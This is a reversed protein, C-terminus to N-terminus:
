RMSAVKSQLANALRALRAYLWNFEIIYVVPVVICSILGFLTAVGVGLTGGAPNGILLYANYTAALLGVTLWLQTVTTARTAFYFALTAATMVGAVFLGVAFSTQATLVRPELARVAIMSLVGLVIVVLPAAFGMAMLYRRRPSRANLTDRAIAFAIFCIAFGLWAFTSVWAFEIGGEVPPGAILVYLRPAINYMIVTYMFAVAPLILSFARQQVMQSALLYATMGQAVVLASNLEPTAVHASGLLAAVILTLTLSLACLLAVGQQLVTAPAAALSLPLPSPVDNM